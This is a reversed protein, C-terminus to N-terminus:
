KKLQAQQQKRKLLKARLRKLPSTPQKPKPTLEKKIEEVVRKLAEEGYKNNISQLFLSIFAGAKVKDELAQANTIIMYAVAECYNDSMVRNDM